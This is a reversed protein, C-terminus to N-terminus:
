LHAIVGGRPRQEELCLVLERLCAIDPAAGSSEAIECAGLFLESPVRFGGVVNVGRQLQVDLGSVSEALGAGFTVEPDYLALEASVVDGSAVEAACQGSGAGDPVPVGLRARDVVQGIDLDVEALVLLGGVM